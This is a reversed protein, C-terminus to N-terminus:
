KHKSEMHRQLQKFTRHCLPCVGAHIRRAMSATEKNKLSIESLAEDRQQRLREVEGKTQDLQFKLREAETKDPWYNSHGNPCFFGHHTEKRNYVFTDTLGFVIGCNACEITKMEVKVQYEVVPM